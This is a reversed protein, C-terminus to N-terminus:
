EDVTERSDCYEGYKEDVLQDIYGKSFLPFQQSVEGKLVETVHFFNEEESLTDDDLSSLYEDTFHENIYQQVKEVASEEESM